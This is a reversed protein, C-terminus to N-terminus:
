AVSSPGRSLCKGNWLRTQWFCYRYVLEGTMTGLRNFKVWVSCVGMASCTGSVSCKLTTLRQCSFWNRDYQSQHSLLPGASKLQIGVPSRPLWDAVSWRGTEPELSSFNHWFFILFLGPCCSRFSASWLQPRFASNTGRWFSNAFFLYIFLFMDINTSNFYYNSALWNAEILM